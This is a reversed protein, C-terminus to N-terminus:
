FDGSRSLIRNIQRYLVNGIEQSEEAMKEVYGYLKDPWENDVYVKAQNCATDFDRVYIEIEALDKPDLLGSQNINGTKYKNRAEREINKFMWFVNSWVRNAASKKTLDGENEKVYMQLLECDTTISVLDFYARIYADLTNALAGLNNKLEDQAKALEDIQARLPEIDEERVKRRSPMQSILNSVQASITAIGTVAEVLMAITIASM